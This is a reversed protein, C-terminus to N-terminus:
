CGQRKEPAAVSFQFMKPFDKFGLGRVGFGLGWVRFGSGFGKLVVDLPCAITDVLGHSTM